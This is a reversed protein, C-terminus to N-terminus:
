ERIKLVGIRLLNDILFKEIDETKVHYPVEILRVGVDVCMRRKLEDRYKQNVFADHNRHFFPTYKYHQVGNYEVALKMRQNFCDLELNRNMHATNKLFDPRDKKFPMGFIGEMVRRCEVEGKSDGKKNGEGVNENATSPSKIKVGGKNTFESLKGFLRRTWTGSKVGIYQNHTFIMTLVSLAIGFLLELGYRNWIGSLM